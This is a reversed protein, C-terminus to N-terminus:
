KTSIDLVKLLREIDYSSLNVDQTKALEAIQQCKEGLETKEIRYLGTMELEYTQAGEGGRKKEAIASFKYHTQYNRDTANKFTLKEGLCKLGVKKAPIFLTNHKGTKWSIPHEATFFENRSFDVKRRNKIDEPFFIRKFENNSATGFWPSPVTFVEGTEDYFIIQEITKGNPSTFPNYWNTLSHIVNQM